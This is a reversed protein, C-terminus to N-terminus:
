GGVAPKVDGAKPRDPDGLLAEVPTRDFGMDTVELEHVVSEGDVDTALVLHGPMQIGDVERYDSYIVVGTVWDNWERVTYEVRDVLGSEPDIWVLYQDKDNPAPDDWCVFARAYTKGGHEIPGADLVIPADFLRHPMEFFYQLTPFYLHIDEIYRWEPVGDDDLQYSEWNQIGQVTGAGPGDVWEYRGDFSGLLMSMHVKQPNQPWPLFLWRYFWDPWSDVFTVDLTRYGDWRAKGGMAELASALLPEGARPEELPSALERIPETRLDATGCGSLTTLGGLLLLVTVTSLIKTSRTM